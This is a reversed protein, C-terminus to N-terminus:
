GKGLARIRSFQENALAFTKTRDNRIMRRGQRQRAWADFNALITYGIRGSANPIIERKLSMGIAKIGQELATDRAPDCAVWKGLWVECDVHDQQRPAPGLRRALESQRTVKTWLGVEANIRYVRYRAPIGISRLLAVLLNAKGSCMGWGKALSQSATVDWDELGYPLEKVFDFLRHFKQRSTRCDEALEEAKARIQPNSDFDCLESPQLYTELNSVKMLYIKAPSLIFCWLAPFLEEFRTRTSHM